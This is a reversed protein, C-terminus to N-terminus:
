TQRNRLLVRSVRRAGSRSFNRNERTRFYKQNRTITSLQGSVKYVSEELVTTQEPSSGQKSPLNVRAENEVQM